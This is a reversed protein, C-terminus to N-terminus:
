TPANYTFPTPAKDVVAGSGYMSNYNPPPVMPATAAAAPPAPPPYVANGYPASYTGGFQTQYNPNFGPNSPPITAATPRGYTTQSVPTAGTGSFGSTTVVSVGPRGYTARTGVTNSAKSAAVCVCVIIVIPVVCTVLVSIVIIAIIYGALASSNYEYEEFSLGGEDGGEDESEEEEKAEEESVM